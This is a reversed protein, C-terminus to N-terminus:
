KDIFLDGGSNWKTNGKYSNEGCIHFFCSRENLIDYTKPFEFVAFGSIEEGIKPTDNSFDSLLAKVSLTPHKTFVGTGCSFTLGNMNLKAIDINEMTFHMIFYYKGEPAVYYKGNYTFDTTEQLTTTYLCLNDAGDPQRMDSLYRVMSTYSHSIQKPLALNVNLAPIERVPLSNENKTPVSRADKNLIRYIVTAGQARTLVGKPNFTGQNDVGTLIGNGYCILVNSRYAKTIEYYDPIENTSIDTSKIGDLRDLVRAIILGMEERTIPENMCNIGGFEDAGLLRAKCCRYFDEEYWLTVGDDEVYYFPSGDYKSSLDCVRSILTIFQARTMTSDPSFLAIGNADPATTGAFIGQEVMEMISDHAWHTNPVDGFGRVVPVAFVPVSMSCVMVLSLMLSVLKKM